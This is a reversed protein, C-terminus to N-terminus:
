RGTIQRILPQLIDSVERASAREFMKRGNQETKLTGDANLISEGLRNVLATLGATGKEVVQKAVVDADIVPVGSIKFLNFRNIERQRYKWEPNVANIGM